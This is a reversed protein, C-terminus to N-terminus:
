FISHYASIICTTHWGQWFWHLAKRASGTNPAEQGDLLHLVMFCKGSNQKQGTVFQQWILCYVQTGSYYTFRYFLNIGCIRGVILASNFNPWLPRPYKSLANCFLWGMCTGHSIYSVPRRVYSCFDDDSRCGQKCRNEMGAQIIFSNCFYTNRCSRYRDVLCLQYYGLGLWRNSESEVPWYWLYSGQLCFVRWFTILCIAISFGIWWLRAPNAEIPGIIDETVQHYNKDGDVLPERLQSEYKLLSM